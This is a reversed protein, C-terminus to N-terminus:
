LRYGKKRLFYRAEHKTKFQEIENIPEIFGGGISNVGPYYFYNWRKVRCILTTTLYQPYYRENKKIVRVERM